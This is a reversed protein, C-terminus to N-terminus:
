NLEANSLRVSTEISMPTYFKLLKDINMTNNVLYLQQRERLEKITTTTTNKVGCWEAITSMSATGVQAVNFVGSQDANLLERTAGVVTSTCTLSDVQDDVYSDFKPLKVLLNNRDPRDSFLLRPRLILDREEDCLKEGVWKTATYNCHASIFDDEANEKSTDDYLCGTSIQVFKVDNANCYTSLIGPLKGNIFLAESFNDGECWQTQSKGICNIVVDYNSLENLAKGAVTGDTYDIRFKDKGWVEFGHREFETGLYGRGLVLINNPTETNAM